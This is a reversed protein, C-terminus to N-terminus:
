LMHQLIATRGGAPNANAGADQLAPLRPQLRSEL